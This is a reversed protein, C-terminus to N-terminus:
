SCVGIREHLVEFSVKRAEFVEGDLELAALGRMEVELRPVQWHRRGPRGQFRGRALDALARVAAPRTMGECLNLALLGDDPAVPTDYRFGGSVWRTKTVSLNTLACPFEDEDKLRLVAELNRYGALTRQAAFLIAGDTWRARLWRQVRDGSSFFANAQAVLGLSASVLFHREQPSGDAAIFRARCVDRSTRAAGIRLPVGGVVRGFPKHFDNSSGLGVAGLIFSELALSGRARLLADVLTGVTGDGGAALFVQVAEAMARRVAGEWRGSDDLEVVRPEFSAAVISEVGAWRAKGRGGGAAPNLLVLAPPRSSASM